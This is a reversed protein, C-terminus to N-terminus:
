KNTQYKIDTQTVEEGKKFLLFCVISVARHRTKKEKSVINIIYESFQHLYACIKRTRKQYQM